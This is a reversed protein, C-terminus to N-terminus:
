CHEDYVAAAEDLARDAGSTDYSVDDLVVGANRLALSANRAADELHEASNSGMIGARFAAVVDAQVYDFADRADRISSGTVVTVSIPGSRQQYRSIM